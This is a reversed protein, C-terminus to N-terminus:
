GAEAGAHAARGDDPGEELGHGVWGARPWEAKGSEPAPSERVARGVKCNDAAQSRGESNDKPCTNGARLARNYPNCHVRQAQLRQALSGPGALLERNLQPAVGEVLYQQAHTRHCRRSKRHWDYTRLDRVLVLVLIQVQPHPQSPHFSSAELCSRRSDEVIRDM